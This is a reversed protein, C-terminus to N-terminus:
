FKAVGSLSYAPKMVPETDQNRKGYGESYRRLFAYVKVLLADISLKIYFLSLGSSM